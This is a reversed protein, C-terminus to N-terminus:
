EARLAQMPEVFTARAAPILAAPLGAIALMLALLLFSSFCMQQCEDQFQGARKKLPIGPLV